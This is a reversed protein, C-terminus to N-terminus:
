GWSSGSDAVEPQEQPMNKMALYGLGALGAGGAGIALARKLGRSRNMQDLEQGARIQKYPLKLEQGQQVLKQVKKGSNFLSGKAKVIAGGQQKGYFYAGLRSAEAPNQAVAKAQNLADRFMKESGKPVPAGHVVAKQIDPAFGKVAAVVRAKLPAPLGAVKELIQNKRAQDM